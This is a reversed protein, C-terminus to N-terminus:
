FGLLVPEMELRIGFRAYVADAIQDRLALLEDATGGDCNILALTHRSSIGVNGLRFGRAFGAQEILWAAPLKIRHEGAPYSPPPAGLRQALAAFEATTVVPNRFFSGASRVDPDGPVLLMGKSRRIARVRDAVASLTPSLQDAFARQLDAYRLLPAGGPLLAFEVATVVFLDRATSNFISQRYSFSCDAAEMEHFQLTARDLVRVRRITEAVEQGYAGVNQVPTGGVTGPIGALCEIGACDAAIAETVFTDWPEGAAARFLCLDDQFSRSIGRLDSQLVLGDFGSDAVVLNSGGGLVFVPLNCTRAWTFAEVLQSESSLRAFWRAPGGIGLTTLPALPRNEEISLGSPLIM